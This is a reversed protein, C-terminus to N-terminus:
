ISSEVPECVPDIHVDKVQLRVIPLIQFGVSFSNCLSEEGTPFCADLIEFCESLGFRLQRPDQVNQQQAFRQKELRMEMPFISNETNSLIGLTGVPWFDVKHEDIALELQADLPGAAFESLAELLVFHRM